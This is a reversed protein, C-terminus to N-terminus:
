RSARGILPDWTLGGKLVFMLKKVGDWRGRVRSALCDLSPSEGFLISFEQMGVFKVSENFTRMM